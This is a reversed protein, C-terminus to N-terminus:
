ETLKHALDQYAGLAAQILGEVEGSKATIIADFEEDPITKQEEESSHGKVGGQAGPGDSRVLKWVVGGREKIAKMENIYRVDTVIVVETPDYDEDFERFLREVWTAEYIKRCAEGFVQLIYRPTVNYRPDKEEKLDAALECWVRDLDANWLSFRGQRCHNHTDTWLKDLRIQIAVGANYKSTKQEQEENNYM